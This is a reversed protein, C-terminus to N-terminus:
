RRRRIVAAAEEAAQRWGYGRIYVHRKSDVVAEPSGEEFGGRDWTGSERLWDVVRERTDGWSFGVMEYYAILAFLAHDHCGPVSGEEYITQLPEQTPVAVQERFAAPSLLELAGSATERVRQDHRLRSLAASHLRDWRDPSQERLHGERKAGTALTSLINTYALEIEHWPTGDFRCDPAHLSTTTRCDPCPYHFQVM